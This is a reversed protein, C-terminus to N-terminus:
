LEESIEAGLYAEIVQENKQIEEPSGEAIKRGHDLVSVVDSIGMVVKMDHEILIITIDRTEMLEQILNIVDATEDPSMGATPEDLLLLNVDSALARAIELRRQDGYPLSNAFHYCKDKLGVFDLLSLARSRMQNEESKMRQTRLVSDIPTAAMRTDSGVLVNDIVTMMGFLRIRQFTRSVGLACIENPALGILETGKYTISGSEPSYFGSLVNFFTTKGAGNPGIIAHINNKIVNLSVDNVAVLGGFEKRLDRVELIAGNEEQSYGPVNKQPEKQEFELTNKIEEDGKKGKDIENQSPPTPKGVIGYPWLIISGMLAFGYIVMRYQQGFRLIEPAVTLLVAGIVSGVMSGEGGIVVMANLILSRWATFNDPHIYRIYTAIFSGAIGAFFCGVIFSLIKMWTTNVGMARAATEEERIAIFSRGQRSHILRWFVFYAIVAIFLVLYYYPLLDQFEYSFLRPAPIDTLGMPGRTMDVWNYLVIRVIEGFALTVIALYHGRLRLVIVGLFGAIIASLVGGAIFAIWYPTNSKMVLLTFTYAGIGYFAAHGLALQGTYGMILNLSTTLVIYVMSIILLHRYYNISSLFPAGIAVVAVIPLYVKPNQFIRSIKKLIKIGPFSNLISRIKDM